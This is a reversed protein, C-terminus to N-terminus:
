EVTDVPTYAWQQEEAILLQGVKKIQISTSSITFRLFAEATIKWNCPIVISERYVEKLSLNDLPKLMEAATGLSTLLPEANPNKNVFIFGEFTECSIKAFM